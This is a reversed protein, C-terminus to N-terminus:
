LFVEEAYYGLETREGDGMETYNPVTDDSGNVILVLMGQPLKTNYRYPQLLDAGTVLKIGSVLVEGAVTSITLFSADERVSHLFRFVFTEGDLKVEREYNPEKDVPISYLKKAM